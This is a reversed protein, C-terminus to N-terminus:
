KTAERWETLLEVWKKASARTQILRKKDLDYVKKLDDPRNAALWDLAPHLYERYDKGGQIPIYIVERVRNADDFTITETAKWGPFEILKAFDNREVITVTWVDGDAEHELIRVDPHLPGDWNDFSELSKEKSGGDGKRENFYFRYDDAMLKGRADASSANLFATLNELRTKDRDDARSFAVAGLFAVVVAIIVDRAKM